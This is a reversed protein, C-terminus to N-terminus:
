RRHPPRAGRTMDLISLSIGFPDRLVACRGIAIDFPEAVIACGRQELFQVADIVNDVLYQVDVQAPIDARDHLVVETDSEPFGLGVTAGDQWIPHLGLVDSVRIMVCDVKKLVPDAYSNAVDPKIVDGESGVM